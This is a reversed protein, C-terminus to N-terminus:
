ASGGAATARSRSSSLRTCPRHGGRGHRGALQEEDLGDVVREVDLEGAVLRHEHEALVDPAEAAHEAGGGAEAIAEAGVAADVRREGLGPDEAGGDPEAHGAPARDHSICYSANEYGHRSWSIM